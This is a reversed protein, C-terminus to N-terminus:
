SQERERLIEVGMYRGLMMVTAQPNTGPSFNWTSGDIIRLADVGLVHYTPSVVRGVQSGGHYHWITTVTDRCFQELSTSDNTHKPIYNIPLSSTLNLLFATSTQPYRFDTFSGSNIVQEITQIGQVCAQLDAPDAFYNFTVAPNDSVNTTLLRLNGNSLPGFVKELIFGGGLAAPNNAAVAVKLQAVAEAIREQTREGPPYTALQGIQPSMIGLYPEFDDSNSTAGAYGSLGSAAEIFSGFPTIGVVQILDTEVPTPSPVFIANMPNDAMGAGVGPNDVLVSINFSRLHEAPGIGSLMMLQPTGLAGACLIIESQRTNRELYARHTSGTNDTYAVGYALPQNRGRTRFLVRHVNAHLLVTINDPNAYELLDAATHRNGEADFISGGVKTGVIHDFTQGNYPLIGVELLGNRVGSQWQQVIPVNAVVAEVWPYSENVLTGNWGLHAVYEPSARSYFGANLCSSGGLVRARSSIVGDTSVFRQAPSDPRDDAITRPFNELRTINSNGYPVGGRELVLVRYRSSLTAALPCGATGGGVIIYDFRGQLPSVESAEKVFTYNPAQEAYLRQTAICFLLSVLLLIVPPSAM